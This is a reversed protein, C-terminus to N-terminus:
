KSHNAIVYDIRRSWNDSINKILEEQFPDWVTDVLAVKEDMILYSNYTSGRHVSLEHGHFKRIDWDVAGVWFVGKAIEVVM